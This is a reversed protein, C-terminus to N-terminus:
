EDILSLWLYVALRETTPSMEEDTTPVVGDHKIASEVTLLNDELHAIIRQYFTEYREGEKRKILYLKLFNIESKSFSYHRRIRKWIWTLGTSRKTIENHLLSPSFQAILGLMRELQISKQAATKRVDAAVDNPDDQLGRNTVSSKGWTFANALFPAFDNCLSLHYCLNSQWSAFSTITEEESLTWQKPPRFTTAM